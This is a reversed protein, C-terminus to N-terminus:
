DHYHAAHGDDKSLSHDKTLFMTCPEPGPELDKLSIMQSLRPQVFDKKKRKKKMDVDQTLKHICM